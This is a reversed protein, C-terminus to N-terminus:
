PKKTKSISLRKPLERRYAKLAGRIHDKNTGKELIWNGNHEITCHGAVM